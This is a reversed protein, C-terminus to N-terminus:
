PYKYALGIGIGSNMVQYRAKWAQVFGAKRHCDKTMAGKAPSEMNSGTMLLRGAKAPYKAVAM